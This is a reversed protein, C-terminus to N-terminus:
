GSMGPMVIDLILCHTQDVFEVGSRRGGVFLRRAFGLQRLLDPSAFRSTM